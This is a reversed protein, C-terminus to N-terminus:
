TQCKECCFIDPVDKKSRVNTCEINYWSECSDCCIWFGGDDLYVLGCKPCVASDEEESSSDDITLEEMMNHLRGGRREPGKRTEQKRFEREKWELEKKKRQEEREKKKKEKELQKEKKKEEREIRKQERELQKEKKLKQEELKAEEEAKLEELVKSDTICIAKKNNLAQKNRRKSAPKPQPLVLIESLVDLTSAKEVSKSCVSLSSTSESEVSTNGGRPESQVDIPHQIRLWTEYESDHIDYGEQFRQEYLREKEPTFVEEHISEDVNEGVDDTKNSEPVAKVLTLPPKSCVADSPSSQNDDIAGPNLPFAGSKRFGAMVNIPTLSNPWATAILSVIIDTTIVRGPHKALYGSCAKSFNTKFSKFVGVDLPQLVHSTHSPICLIHVGNTRALEILTISMHSAHGDLILLVPRTPPVCKLFFFPVM